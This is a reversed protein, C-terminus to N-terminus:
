RARERATAAKKKANEALRNKKAIKQYRIEQSKETKSTVAPKPKRESGSEKGTAPSKSISTLDGSERADNKNYQVPSSESALPSSPANDGSVAGSGKLVGGPSNESKPSATSDAKFKIELTNKTSVDRDPDNPSDARIDAASKTLATKEVTNQAEITPAAVPNAPSDRERTKANENESLGNGNKTGEKATVEIATEKIAPDEITRPESSQPKNSSPNARSSDAETTNIQSLIIQSSKTPSPNIQPQNMSTENITSQITSTERM